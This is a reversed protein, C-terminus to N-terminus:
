SHSSSFPSAFGKPEKVWPRHTNKYAKLSYSCASVLKRKQGKNWIEFTQQLINLHSFLLTNGDKHKKEWFGLWCCIDNMGILMMWKTNTNPEKHVLFSAMNFHRFRIIPPHDSQRHHFRLNMYLFISLSLSLSLSLNKGLLSRQSLLKLSLSLSLSLPLYTHSSSSYHYYYSSSSRGEVGNLM